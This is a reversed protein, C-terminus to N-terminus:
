KSEKTAKTAKRAAPAEPAENLLFDEQEQVADKAAQTEQVSVKYDYAQGRFDNAFQVPADVIDDNTLVFGSTSAYTDFGYTEEAFYRYSNPNKDSSSLPFFGAPTAGYSGGVLFNKVYIMIKAGQPMESIDITRFAAVEFTGEAQKARAMQDTNFINAPTIEYDALYDAIDRSVLVTFNSRAIGTSTELKQLQRRIYIKPNATFAAVDMAENAFTTKIFNMLKAVETRAWIDTTEKIYNAKEQAFLEKDTQPEWSENIYMTEGMEMQLGYRTACSSELTPCGDVLVREFIPAPLLKNFVLIKSDANRKFNMIDELQISNNIQEQLMAFYAGGKGILEGAHNATPTAM